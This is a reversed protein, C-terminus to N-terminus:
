QLHLPTRKEEYSFEKDNIKTVKGSAMIADFIPQKTSKKNINMGTIGLKLFLEYLESKKAKKYLVKTTVVEFPPEQNTNADQPAVADAVDANGEEALLMEWDAVVPVAVDDILAAAMEEEAANQAAIMAIM